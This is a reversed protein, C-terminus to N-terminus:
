YVRASSLRRHMEKQVHRPVSGSEGPPMIWQPETRREDPRTVRAIFRGEPAEYEYEFSFKSATEQDLGVSVNPKTPRIPNSYGTLAALASSKGSANPGVILTFPGLPLTADRLLRFNRYRIARFM